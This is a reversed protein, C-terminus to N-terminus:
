VGQGMWIKVGMAGLCVGMFIAMGHPLTLTGAPGETGTGPPGLFRAGSGWDVARVYLSVLLGPLTNKRERHGPIRLCALVMGTVAACVSVSLGEDLSLWAGIAGM